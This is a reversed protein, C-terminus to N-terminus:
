EAAKEFKDGIEGHKVAAPGNKESLAALLEKIENKSLNQGVELAKAATDFADKIDWTADSLPGEITVSKSGKTVKIGGNELKEITLAM